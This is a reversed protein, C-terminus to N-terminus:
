IAKLGNPAPLKHDVHCWFRTWFRTQHLKMTRDSDINNTIFM